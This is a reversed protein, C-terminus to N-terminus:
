RNLFNQATSTEVPDAGEVGVIEYLTHAETRSVQKKSPIVLIRATVTRSRCNIEIQDGVSVERSSKAAQGNVIIDGFDCM